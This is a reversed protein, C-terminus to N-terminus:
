YCLIKSLPSTVWFCIYDIYILSSIAIVDFLVVALNGIVNQIENIVKVTKTTGISNRNILKKAFDFLWYIVCLTM